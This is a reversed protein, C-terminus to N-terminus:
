MFFYSSLGVLHPLAKVLFCSESASNNSKSWLSPSQLGHAFLGFTYTLSM